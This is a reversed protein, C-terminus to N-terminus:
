SELFHVIKAFFTLFYTSQYYQIAHKRDCAAPSEIQTKNNSATHDMATGSVPPDPPIRSAVVHFATMACRLRKNNPLKLTLWGGLTGAEVSDGRRGISDGNRPQIGIPARPVIPGGACLDIEGCLFELAIAFPAAKLEEALLKEMKDFKCVAGEHFFVLITPRKPEDPRSRHYRMHFAVSTWQSPAHM